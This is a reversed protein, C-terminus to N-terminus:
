YIYTCEDDLIVVNARDPKEPFIRPTQNIILRFFLSPRLVNDDTINMKICFEASTDGKTVKVYYPGAEYDVGGTYSIASDM